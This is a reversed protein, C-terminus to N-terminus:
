LTQSMKDFYPLTFHNKQQKVKSKSAAKAIHWQRPLKNFALSSFYFTFKYYPLINLAKLMYPAYIDEDCAIVSGHLAV